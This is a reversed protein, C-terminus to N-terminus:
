QNPVVKRWSYGRCVETFGISDYLRNAPVMDGTDVTAERAGLAQLRRLGEAMLAQALGKQRHDPHTCVPEFIGQLTAEDYPIGVYAALTGDSAEAVLDLERRFSPALRAFNHFELANHFDRGFAANLLDAIRRCDDLDDPRTTRLTYGDALAPQPLPADGLRLRRIYGGHPMKVYGRAALLQQRPLDYEYVYIELQRGNGDSAPADLHAEAWAVMEAELHRFDPHLQLHADGAGEPNVVGVLHGAETEWLGVRDQWRPLWDLDEHYFRRSEWRRIDWNWGLPTLPYTAILLDRVRWFDRDDRLPRVTAATGLRTKDM